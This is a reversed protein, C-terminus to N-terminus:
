KHKMRRLAVTRMKRAYEAREGSAGSSLYEDACQVAEPYRKELFFLQALEASNRGGPVLKKGEAYQRIAEEVEGRAAALRGRYYLIDARSSAEVPTKLAQEWQTVTAAAEDYRKLAYLADCLPEYVSVPALPNAAAEKLYPLAAENQGESWLLAGLQKLTFARNQPGEFRADLALRYREKANEFAGAEEFRKGEKMLVEGVNLDLRALFGASVRVYLVMGVVLLVTAAGAVIAAARFVGALEGPVRPPTEVPIRKKSM